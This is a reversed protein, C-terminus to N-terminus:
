RRPRVIAYILGALAGATAQLFLGLFSGTVAGFFGVQGSVANELGGFMIAVGMEASSFLAVFAAAGAISYVLFGPARILRRIGAAASLAVALAIAELLALSLVGSSVMSWANLILVDIIQEPTYVIGVAQQRQIVSATFAAASAFAGVGLAILYARVLSFSM